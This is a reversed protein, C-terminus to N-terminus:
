SINELIEGVFITINGVIFCFYYQGIYDLYFENENNIYGDHFINHLFNQNLYFRSFIFLVFLSFLIVLNDYGSEKENIIISFVFYGNGIVFIVM